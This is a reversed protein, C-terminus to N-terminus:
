AILAPLGRDGPLSVTNASPLRIAGERKLKSMVRSVTEITLGLYDAIDSRRMPIQTVNGVETGSREQLSRLFYLIREYARIQGLLVVHDQYSCLESLTGEQIAASIAQNNHSAQDIVSRPVTVLELDTVSELSFESDACTCPALFDGPFVFRLIQRRGDELFRECRGVGSLVVTYYRSSSEGALVTEDPGHKRAHGLALFERTLYAKQRQDRAQRLRDEPRLSIRGTCPLEQHAINSSSRM